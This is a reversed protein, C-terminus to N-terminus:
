HYIITHISEDETIQTTTWTISKIWSKNEETWTGQVENFQPIFGCAKSLFKPDTSYSISIQEVAGSLQDNELVGFAILNFTTKDNAPDIPLWIETADSSGPTPTTIPKTSNLGLIWLSEPAKALDPQDADRFSIHWRPADGAICIDDKECGVLILFVLTLLWYGAIRM